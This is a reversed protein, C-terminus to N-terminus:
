RHIAAPECAGTTKLESVWTRAADWLAPDNFSDFHGHGEPTGPNKGSPCYILTQAGSDTAATAGASSDEFALADAPNFGLRRAAETYMHPSPKGSPVDESSVWTTLHPAYGYTHMKVNLIRRTSNSAVAVPMHQSLFTLFEKAGPILEVGSGIVHAEVRLLTDLTTHVHTNYAATDTRDGTYSLNALTAAVDHAALGTLKEELEESFPINWQKFLERQVRNWVTESDLLVGDCDFIACRPFWTAPLHHEFM